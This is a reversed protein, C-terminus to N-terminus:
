ECEGPYVPLCGTSVPVSPDYGLTETLHALLRDKLLRARYPEASFLNHQEGPDTSLDYLEQTGNELTLIYKWGDESRISRKHTFDRYDTESFVDYGRREGNELYGLLNTRGALQRRVEETPRIDLLSLLTPMVDITSVQSDIVAGGDTGPIVFLLPVHLQEDYLSHGHDFGGHEFFEEGHDSLVVIVTDEMLNRKAIEDLFAALRADADHLKGDYWATWFAADESTYALPGALQAERLVAEEASTGRYTGDYGTDYISEYGPPIKFQGHLDYGHFFMFFKEDEHEDLWALAHRMSNEMGGFPVEDTYTDFGQKYGFAGSVGADGTFGGTAYGNESLVEALTSLEPASEALNSMVRESPTFVRFKNTVGHVSPYTGTFISMFTPVTWSAPSIAESFLYGKKALADFAPTTEREYGLASAHDARFTDIAIIIVNCDKCSFPRSASGFFLVAGIILVLAGAGMLVDNRPM